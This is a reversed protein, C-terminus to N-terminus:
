KLVKKFRANKGLEGRAYDSIYAELGELGTKLPIYVPNEGVAPIYGLDRLKRCKARHIGAEACFTEQTVVHPLATAKVDDVERPM